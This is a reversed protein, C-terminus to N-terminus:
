PVIESGKRGGTHVFIYVDYMHTYICIHICTCTFKTPRPRCAFTTFFSFSSKKKTLYTPVLLIDEQAENETKANERRYSTPLM